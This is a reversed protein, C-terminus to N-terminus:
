AGPAVDMLKGQFFGGYERASDYIRSRAYNVRDSGPPNLGRFYRNTWLLARTVVFAFGCFSLFGAIFLFIIATVPFWIPSSIIILPTIIVLAVTIGAVTLGAVFLSLAAVICIAILSVIQSPTPAHKGLNHRFSSYSEPKSVQDLNATLPQLEDM